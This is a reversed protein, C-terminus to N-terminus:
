EAAPLQHLTEDSLPTDETTTAEGIEYVLEAPMLPFRSAAQFWRVTMVNIYHRVEDISLSKIWAWWDEREIGHVEALYERVEIDNNAHLDKFLTIRAQQQADLDENVILYRLSVADQPSLVELPLDQDVKVIDTGAARAEIEAKEAQEREEVHKRKVERVYSATKTVSMDLNAAREAVEVQEEPTDLSMIAEAHSRSLEHAAIKDLVPEPLELLKLTKSVQSRNIGLAKAVDVQKWGFVDIMQQMSYAQAIPDLAERQLNEVVRSALAAADDFHRIVAPIAQQDLQRYAECRRFGAVLEYPKHHREAAPTDTEDAERVVVPQILGRANISAALEEIGTLQKRVNEPFHIDALDIVQVDFGASLEINDVPSPSDLLASTENDLQESM